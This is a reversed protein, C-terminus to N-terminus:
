KIEEKSKAIEAMAEALAMKGCPECYGHSLQYNVLSLEPYQWNKNGPFKIKGCSVCYSAIEKEKM